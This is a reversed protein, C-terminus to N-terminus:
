YAAGIFSVTLVHTFSNWSGHSTGAVFVIKVRNGVQDIRYKIQSDGDGNKYSILNAVQFLGTSYGGSPGSVVHYVASAPDRHDDKIIVFGGWTGLLTSGDKEYLDLEDGPGFGSYTLTWSHDSAIKGVVDLNATPSTTGIGVNGSGSVYLSGNIDLQDASTLSIYGTGGGNNNLFSVSPMGVVTDNGELLITGSSGAYRSIHLPITPSITGIGVNGGSVFLNDTNVALSGSFNHIDDLSNGFQTSGSDYIISASVFETHFEQATLIGGVTLDGPITQNSLQISSSILTKGELTTLRSDNNSINSALSSSTSVFAGSIETSLQASSSVVGLTNIYSLTDSDTYMNSLGSGDGVFTSASLYGTITTSGSVILSGSVIPNDIKM